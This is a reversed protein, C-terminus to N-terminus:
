SVNRDAYSEVVLQFREALLRRLPDSQALLASFEASTMGPSRLITDLDAMQRSFELDALPPTVVDVHRELMGAFSYSALLVNFCAADSHKPLECARM